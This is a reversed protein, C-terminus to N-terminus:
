LIEWNKPSINKTQVIDPHLWIKPAVVMKSPNQSLFACWWAFSSNPIIFNKCSTMLRMYRSFKDGAHTHNIFHTECGFQVNETCWEIDDSFVFVVPNNVSNKIKELANHYYAMPLVGHSSNSVFDSRRFNVCVSETSNILAATEESNEWPIHKLSFDKRITEEIKKFYAVNQWYGNLYINGKLDFIAANFKFNKEAIYKIGKYPLLKNKVKQQKSRLLNFNSSIDPSIFDFKLNFISLDFNRYVFNQREARNLLFTKDLFLTDDNLISLHRGLAYQFMQNGLGGALEAIIM